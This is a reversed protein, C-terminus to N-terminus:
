LRAIAQALHRAFVEDSWYGTHTGRGISENVASGNVAGGVYDGDRFLNHWPVPLTFRGQFEEGLFRTYITSLPSGVTVLLDAVDGKDRLLTWTIVSGQSHAVIVVPIGPQRNRLQELLLGLRDLTVPRSAM